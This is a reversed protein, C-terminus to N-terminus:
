YGLILKTIEPAVPAYKDFTMTYRGRGHTITRLKTAYGMMQELPVLANVVQSKARPTFGSVEGRRSNIDGMVSGMDENEPLTVELNMFPELLIPSAAQCAERYAMSAAVQYAAETSDTEHTQADVLTVQVDVMPYGAYCGSQYVSEISKHIAEVFSSSLQDNSLASEFHFGEGRPNPKVKLICHGFQGKNSASAPREFRGSAQGESIITERYAVRMKGVNAAVNFDDKLRRVLVELHLEGMGAILTQGTEPDILVQFSPDELALRDLAQNLKEQDATTRPEIAVRMVPDPFVIRELLVRSKDDCLTDGTTIGKLGVAAIIEGAHCMDVEQRQNAHMRLLRGIRERKGTNANYVTKGSKLTGSYVRLYSLLGYSDSTIKFILAAFPAEDDAPCVILKDTTTKGEISVGEIAPIELPSPLLQIVADLLSQIGKNKFASGCLVPVAKLEITVRRLAAIIHETTAQDMQSAFEDDLDSLAELLLEHRMEAEEVLEEDDWDSLPTVTYTSGLSDDNWVLCQLRVLDVVGVFDSESGIPHQIQLPNVELRDILAEINSDIEAGMRDMKNVFVIRPVKYRDAQEWVTETQPEVGAVGDLVAVAGDLVRLSREVEITFDVHGPTDIINITHEAWECTTAASTITIGREQEQAMYDMIATGEHVEGIRHSKGTYYLIRETTTTKGADIHAMIGINRTRQLSSLRAM